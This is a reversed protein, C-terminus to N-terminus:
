HSYVSMVYDHINWKQWNLMLVKFFWKYPEMYCIIDPPWLPLALFRLISICFIHERYNSLSDGTCVHYVLTCQCPLSIVSNTDAELM